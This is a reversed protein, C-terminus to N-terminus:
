GKAHQTIKLSKNDDTSEKKFFNQLSSQWLTLHNPDLDRGVNQGFQKCILTILPSLIQLIDKSKVEQYNVKMTKLM